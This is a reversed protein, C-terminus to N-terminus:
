MIDWLLFKKAVKMNLFALSTGNQGLLGLYSNFSCKNTLQTKELSKQKEAVAM